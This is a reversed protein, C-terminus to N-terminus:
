TRRCRTSARAYAFTSSPVTSRSATTSAGSRRGARSDCTSDDGFRVHGDAHGDPSGSGKGREGLPTSFLDLFRNGHVVDVVDDRGLEVLRATDVTPRAFFDILHMSLEELLMYEVCEEIIRASATAADPGGDSGGDGGRAPLPRAAWEERLSADEAIAYDVMRALESAFEYGEVEVVRNGRADWVFFAEVETEETLPGLRRRLVFWLSVGVLAVGAAVLLSRPLDDPIARTLLTM